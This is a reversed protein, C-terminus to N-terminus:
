QTSLMLESKIYQDPIIKKKVLTEVIARAAIKHGKVNWHDDTSSIKLKDLDEKKSPFYDRIDLYSFNSIDVTYDGKLCEGTTPLFFLVFKANKMETRHKIIKMMEFAEKTTDVTVFKKHLSRWFSGSYRAYLVLVKLKKYLSNEMKHYKIIGEDFFPFYEFKLRNTFFHFYPSYFDKINRLINDALSTFIIIDGPKIRDEINLYKQFMQVIGYGNVGANYVNINKKFYKVKIINPFNEENSVGHGFTLSDGFFYISIDPNESNNIKRFGEKDIEYMVDFNDKSVHRRSSNPKPKWGLRDDQVFIQDESQIFLGGLFYKYAWLFDFLLFLMFCLFSTTGFLLINKKQISKRNFILFFGAFILSIQFILIIIRLTNGMDFSFLVSFYQGKSLIGASILLVGSVIFIKERSLTSRFIIAILGVSILSLEIIWIVISHPTAIIGDASFLTALVWENFLIGASIFLMGSILLVREKTQSSKKMATKIM